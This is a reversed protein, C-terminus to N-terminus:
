ELGSVVREAVRAATQREVRLDGFVSRTSDRADEDAEFEVGPYDVGTLVLPYAPAPAVGEPGPLPEAAVVRDVKSLTADGRLVEDLLGVVRRVVVAGGCTLGAALSRAAALPRVIEEVLPDVFRGRRLGSGAVEKSAPPAVVRESVTRGLCCLSTV